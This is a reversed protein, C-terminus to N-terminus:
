IRRFQLNKTLLYPFNNFYNSWFYFTFKKKKFLNVWEYVCFLFIILILISFLYKQYLIIYILPFALLSIILRKKFNSM